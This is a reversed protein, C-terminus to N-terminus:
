GVEQPTPYPFSGPSSSPSFVLTPFGRPAAFYAHKCSGIVRFCTIYYFIIRPFFARKIHPRALLFLLADTGNAYARVVGKAKHKDYRTSTQPFKSTMWYRPCAVVLKESALYVRTATALVASQRVMIACKVCTDEGVKETCVCSNANRIVHNGMPHRMLLIIGGSQNIGNETM